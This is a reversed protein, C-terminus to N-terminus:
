LKTEKTGSEASFSWIRGGIMAKFITTGIKGDLILSRKSSASYFAVLVSWVMEVVRVGLILSFLSNAAQM